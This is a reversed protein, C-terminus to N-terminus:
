FRLVPAEDRVRSKRTFYPLACALYVSAYSSWRSPPPLAFSYATSSTQLNNKATNQPSSFLAFTQLYTDHFMQAALLTIPPLSHKRPYDTLFFPYIFEFLLCLKYFFNKHGTNNKKFIDKIIFKFIVFIYYVWHVIYNLLKNYRYPLRLWLM